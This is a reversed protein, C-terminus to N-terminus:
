GAGKKPGKEQKLDGFDSQSTLTHMRTGWTTEASVRAAAAAGSEAGSEAGGQCRGKAVM